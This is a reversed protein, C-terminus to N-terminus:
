AAGPKADKCIEEELWGGFFREVRLERRRMREVKEAEDVAHGEKQVGRDGFFWRIFDSFVFGTFEWDVVSYRVTIEKIAEANRLTHFFQPSIFNSAEEGDDLELFALHELHSLDLPTPLISIKGYKQPHPLVPPLSSKFNRDVMSNSSPSIHLTHYTSPRLPCLRSLYLQQLTRPLTLSPFPPDHYLSLWTLNSPLQLSPFISAAFDEVDSALFYRVRGSTRWMFNEVEEKIKADEENWIADMWARGLHLSTRLRGANPYAKLHAQLEEVYVFDDLYPPAVAKWLQCVASVRLFSVLYKHKDAVAETPEEYKGLSLFEFVIESPLWFRDERTGAFALKIEESHLIDLAVTSKGNGAGGVIGVRRANLIPERALQIETERGFCSGPPPLPFRRRVQVFHDAANHAEHGMVDM